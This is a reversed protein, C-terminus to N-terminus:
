DDLSNTTIYFHLMFTCECENKCQCRRVLTLWIWFIHITPPFGVFLVFRCFRCNAMILWYRIMTSMVLADFSHVYM